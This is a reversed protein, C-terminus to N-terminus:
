VRWRPGLSEMMQDETRKNRPLQIRYAPERAWPPIKPTTMNPWIRVPSACGNTSAAGVLYLSTQNVSLPRTLAVATALKAFGNPPATLARTKEKIREIGRRSHLGKKTESKSVHSLLKVDGSNDDVMGSSLGQFLLCVSVEGLEGLEERGEEAGDGGYGEVDGDDGGEGADGGEEDRGGGWCGGAGGGGGGAGREFGGPFGDGM